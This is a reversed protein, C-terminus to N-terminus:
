VGFASKSWIGAWLLPSAARAIRPQKGLRRSPLRRGPGLQSKTLSEHLRDRATRDHAQEHACGLNMGHFYQGSITEADLKEILNLTAAAGDAVTSAALMDAERVLATNMMSAPHITTVVAGEAALADALDFSWMIM